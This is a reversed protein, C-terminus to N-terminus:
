IEEQTVKKQTQARLMFVMMLSLLRWSQISTEPPARYVDVCANPCHNEEAHMYPDGVYSLLVAKSVAHFLM